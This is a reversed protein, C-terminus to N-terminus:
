GTNDTVCAVVHGMSKGVSDGTDLEEIIGSFCECRQEGARAVSDM